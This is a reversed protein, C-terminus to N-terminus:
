PTPDHDPENLDVITQVLLGQLLQTLDQVSMEGEDQLTWWERRSSQMGFYDLVLKKMPERLAAVEDESPYNRLIELVENYKAPVEM